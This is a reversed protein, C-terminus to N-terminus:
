LPAIMEIQAITKQAGCRQLFAAIGRDGADVNMIRLPKAAVRAASELLRWGMGRRRKTKAVALQALDGTSPFLVAYADAGGIVVHAARAREISATSNQWAPEIDWMARLREWDPSAIADVVATVGAGEYTWCQLRRAAEFGEGEYLGRAATNSEIVELVYRRAGARRLVDASARMIEKALHHRRAAPIVGTGSNYAIEGDLANLAFGALVGERFAGVSLEPRWGRRTLMEQLQERSPSMPVVYDSFAERFAGHIQDFDVATLPYIGNPTM